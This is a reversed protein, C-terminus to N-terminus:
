SAHQIGQKPKYVFPGHKELRGTIVPLITVFVLCNSILHTFHFGAGAALVSLFLRWSFHVSLVYSLNTICDFFITSIVAGGALFISRQLLHAGPIRRMMGGVFGTFGMALIQAAFLVPIAMGYPNLLSYLGESIMGTIIGAGPGLLWGALFVTATMMEVNPIHSFLFGLAVSLGIFMSILTLRQTSPITMFFVQRAPLDGLNVPNLAKGAFSKV